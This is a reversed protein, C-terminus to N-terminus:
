ETPILPVMEQPSMAMLKKLSKELSKRKAAIMAEVRAVADERTLCVDKGIVGFGFKGWGAYKPDNLIRIDEYTVGDSLAYKTIWAKM